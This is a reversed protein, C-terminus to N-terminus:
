FCGETAGTKGEIRLLDASRCEFGPKDLQRDAPIGGSKHPPQRQQVAIWEVANEHACAITSGAV